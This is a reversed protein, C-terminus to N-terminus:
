HNKQKSPWVKTFKKIDETTRRGSRLYIAVVSGIVVWTALWRELSLGGWYVNSTQWKAILIWAIMWAILAVLGVFGRRGSKYWGFSRYTRKVILLVVGAIGLILAVDLGSKGWAVAAVAGLWLGGSLIIDMWEWPDWKKRRTFLWVVALIGVLEGGITWWKWGLSAVLGTLVLLISGTLIEEEPYDERLSRWIYFSFVIFALGLVVGFATIKVGGLNLLVPWM